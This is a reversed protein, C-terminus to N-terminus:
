IGILEDTNIDDFEKKRYIVMTQLYQIKLFTM